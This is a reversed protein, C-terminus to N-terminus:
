LFCEYKKGELYNTFNNCVSEYERKDHVNDQLSKGYIKDFSKFTQQDKEYQTKYKNYKNMIIKHLVKNGLSLSCMIGSSKPLIILGIGTISPYISTSTAGTNVVTDVSELITDLNKKVYKESKYFKNKFYTIM